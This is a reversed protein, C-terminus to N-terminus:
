AAHGRRRPHGFLPYAAAPCHLGHACCWVQALAPLCSASAAAPVSIPHWELWVLFSPRVQMEEQQDRAGSASALRPDNDLQRCDERYQVM